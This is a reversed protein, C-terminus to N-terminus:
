MLNENLLTLRKTTTVNGTTVTSKMDELAADYDFAQDHDPEEVPDEEAPDEELDVVIIKKKKKTKGGLGKSTKTRAM